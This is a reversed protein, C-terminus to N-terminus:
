KKTAMDYVVDVVEGVSRLKMWVKDPIKVNYDSELTCVIYIYNLSEYGKSNIPTGRTIEENQLSPVYQKVLKTLNDQIEQKTVQM